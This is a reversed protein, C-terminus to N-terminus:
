AVNTTLGSAPIAQAETYPEAPTVYDKQQTTDIETTFSTEAVNSIKTIVYDIFMGYEKPVFILIYQGETFGHASATTVEAPANNTVDSILVRAPQFDSNM